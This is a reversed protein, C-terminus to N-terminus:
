TLTDGTISVNSLNEWDVGQDSFDNPAVEQNVDVTIPTAGGVITYPADTARNFHATWTAAVSYSGPTLGSFTWTAVNAGSGPDSYHIDSGFGQSNNTLWSGVTGFELDGDDIIQVEIAEIRIADAIVHQNADDSLEVTLTDGTITVNNLYEWGVGYESFDNPAVEQNIDVTIPTGGGLITFPADTARNLNATWTAAVNYIGPTLGTFTWTAVNSGNGPESYHVDGEFGQNNTSSWNGLTGFGSDGDDIIQVETPEIRIADAIVHQNADDSLQVTLTDGIITVTSLNEWGVGYDSFDNPAVEQNIDVTIPTAGGYITYPADTARNLHATWTAAVSYTGSTLGSFTWTAVNSGSGAASYHVDDGFGQSNSTLWSGTTGFGLDGDDINQVETPEIRIADAIVYEDAEDSLQVTLTNGTITVTSLNEWSVGYDSFDNPAVEQNVDMTILIVDGYISYPADTSRNPHATWTAAVEYTGPTLGGFTWTAVDTGSGAASYRVDGGFGQNNANFWSGVTSFDPDGDDILIESFIDSRFRQGYIGGFSGDQGWSEWTVVFDGDSLETVSPYWQNDNTYTNIQFENGVPIGNSDYRQGYVGYFSGDQGESTWTVVFGGNSLRTVSSDSQDDNTYSNIQFENGVPIGNSDYRRGYIGWSSGDQGWSQWTVAFGGDSLGTVSPVAQQHYTTTNIQFENGVPNGNTDYRQGYVGYFSGDQYYSQWTVVFGGDNLGTVSSDQQEDNTYTNIQFENGVPIGNSDFRQGYVGWRSGDQGWSTWTVVFGGDNLGTVSPVLQHDETYTNIQFENWQIETPQVELLLQANTSEVNGVQNGNFDVPSQEIESDIRTGNNVKQEMLRTTSTTKPSSEQVSNSMLYNTSLQDFNTTEVESEESTFIGLELEPQQPLVSTLELNEGSNLQRLDSDFDITKIAELEIEKVNIESNFTVKQLPQPIELLQPYDFLLNGNITHLDAGLLSDELFLPDLNSVVTMLSNNM